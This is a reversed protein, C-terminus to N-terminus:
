NTAGHSRLVALIAPLDAQYAPLERFITHRAVWLLGHDGRYASVRAGRAFLAELVTPGDCFRVALWLPEGQRVNPDAGHALLAAVMATGDVNRRTTWFHYTLSGLDTWPPDEPVSLDARALALELPTCTDGCELVGNPTSPVQGIPASSSWGADLLASVVGGPGYEIARRLVAADRSGDFHRALEQMALGNGGKAAILLTRPTVQAGGDLLAQVIQPDPKDVPCATSGGAFLGCPTAAREFVREANVARDLPTLGSADRGNVDFGAASLRRAYETTLGAYSAAVDFPSPAKVRVGAALLDFAADNHLSLADFLQNAFFADLADCLQYRAESTAGSTALRVDCRGPYAVLGTTWVRDNTELHAFYQDFDRNTALDVSVDALKRVPLQSPGGSIDVIFSAHPISAIAKRYSIECDRQAGQGQGVNAAQACLTYADIAKSELRHADAVDDASPAEFTYGLWLTYPAGAAVSPGPALLLAGLALAILVLRPM